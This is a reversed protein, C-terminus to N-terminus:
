TYYAKSSRDNLMIHEYVFYINDIQFYITKIKYSQFSVGDTEQIDSVLIHGSDVQASNCTCYSFDQEMGLIEVIKVLLELKWFSVCASTHWILGHRISQKPLLLTEVAQSM